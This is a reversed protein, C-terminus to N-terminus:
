LSILFLLLIDLRLFLEQFVYFRTLYVNSVLVFFALLLLFSFRPYKVKLAKSHRYGATGMYFNCWCYKRINGIVHIRFVLSSRHRIRCHLCVVFIRIAIMVRRIDEILWPEIVNLVSLLLLNHFFHCVKQEFITSSIFLLNHDCFFVQSFHNNVTLIMRIAFLFSVLLLLDSLLMVWSFQNLCYALRIDIFVTKVRQLLETIM